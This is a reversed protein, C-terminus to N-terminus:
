GGLGTLKKAKHPKNIGLTPVAYSQVWSTRNKPERWTETKLPEEFGCIGVQGREVLWATGPTQLPYSFMEVGMSALMAELRDGYCIRLSNKEQPSVILTDYKAGLREMEGVLQANAIDAAPLDAGDTLDDPPGITRANLWDHGPITNQPTGALQDLVALARTNLKEVITNTLQTVQDNLYEIDNRRLREDQVPFKGGWDEPHAVKPIPDVGLVVPYEDGPGRQQITQDEDVFFQDATLVNYLMAGGTVPKGLTHFIKDLVLQDGALSSIRETIRNPQQMVVSVTLDLGSLTPTLFGPM